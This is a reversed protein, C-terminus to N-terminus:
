RPIDDWFIEHPGVDLPEAERTHGQNRECTACEKLQLELCIKALGVIEQLNYFGDARRSYDLASDLAFVTQKV